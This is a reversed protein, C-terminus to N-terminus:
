ENWKKQQENYKGAELDKYMQELRGSDQLKKLGVDFKELWLPGHQCNKSILLHLTSQEFEKPHHTFQRAEEPSFTNRIQTYGVIPDNPFIAIRGSLLKKYNQEDTTVFEVVIKGEDLAAMFEKGYQYGRTVGIKRGVLDNVSKWDFPYSKLHFFVYSTKVVPESLLFAAKTEETSRWVVSADWDKGEKAIEFARKWPFFGWTVQIGELKFAESVIHSALGYQYAYESLYPEGEGNTIRITPEAFVVAAGCLMLGVLLNLCMITCMIQKKMGEQKHYQKHCTAPFGEQQM